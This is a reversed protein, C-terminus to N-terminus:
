NTSVMVLLLSGNDFKKGILVDLIRAINPHELQRLFSIERIIMMDIGLHSSRVSEFRKIAVDHRLDADFGKWVEGFTGSGLLTLRSFRNGFRPPEKEKGSFSTPAAARDDASTAISAESMRVTSYALANSMFDFRIESSQARGKGDSM